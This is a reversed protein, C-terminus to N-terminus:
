FKVSFDEGSSTAQWSGHAGNYNNVVINPDAAGSAGIDFIVKPSNDAGGDNAVCTLAYEMNFDAGDAIIMGFTADSGPAVAISTGDIDNGHGDVLCFAQPEYLKAM